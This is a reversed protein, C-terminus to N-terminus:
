KRASEKLFNRYSYVLEKHTEAVQMKKQEDNDGQRAGSPGVADVVPSDAGDPFYDRGSAFNVDHYGNQLNEEMPQVVLDSILMPSRNGFDDQVLVQQDDIIKIVEFPEGHNGDEWKVHVKAGVHIGDDEDIPHDGYDEDSGHGASALADADASADDMQGMESHDPFFENELGVMIADQEDAEIGMEDMERSIVDFAEQPDVYSALLGKMRECQQNYILDSVGNEEDVKGTRKDSLAASIGAKRKAAIDAFEKQDPGKANRAAFEAGGHQDVAKSVYRDRMAQSIENLEMDEEMACAKDADAPNSQNCSDIAPVSEDTKGHKKNYISWATAFAKDEHGPYEKKLSKVLGEEGPPASEFNLDRREGLGPIASVSEMLERM